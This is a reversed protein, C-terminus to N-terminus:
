RVRGGRGTRISDRMREQLEPLPLPVAHRKRCPRETPRGDSLNWDAVAQRIRASGAEEPLDWAAAIRDVVVVGEAVAAEYRDVFSETSGEHSSCPHPWSEHELNLVDLDTPVELPHVISLWRSGIEGADEREVATELYADDVRNTFRYYGMTDLYANRLRESLHSDTTAKRYVTRLAVSMLDVWAEPPEPGCSVRSFFDLENPHIGRRRRLLEVDILRELFPHMSRYRETDPRDQEPWGAHANIYPHTHRDLIAHSAFGLVWASQWSGLSAGASRAHRWMAAVASGYGRRHMLSGYAIGTPRRRQNHYFIDPGQAGLVLYARAPPELLHALWDTHDGRAVVEEAHLMHSVQSPM